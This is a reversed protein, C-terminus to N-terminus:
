DATFYATSQATSNKKHWVVYITSETADITSVSAVLDQNYQETLLNHTSYGFLGDGSITGHLTYTHGQPLVWFDTSRGAVITVSGSYRSASVVGKNNETDATRHETVDIRSPTPPAASVTITISTTKTVGNETYSISLTKSGETSTDVTGITASSTVNNSSSDSYQATVVVDSVDFNEGVEYQVKTKTASISELTKAPETFTKVGYTDVVTSWKVFEAGQARAYDIMDNWFDYWKHAFIVIFKNNTVANDIYAKAADLTTPALRRHSFPEGIGWGDSFDYLARVWRDTRADNYIESGGGIVIAGRPYLGNNAFVIKESLFKGRLFDEDNANTDTISGNGHLYVEGGNAIGRKIEQLVTKTTDGKTCLNEFESSIAAMGLPVNKAAANTVCLSIAGPLCDDVVLSILANPLQRYEFTYEKTRASGTTVLAEVEDLSVGGGGSISAIETDFDTCPIAGSTGKKARIADAVDTLFHNLNDIRAM